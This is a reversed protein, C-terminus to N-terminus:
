GRRATRTEGPVATAREVAPVTRQVKSPLDAFLDPRAMVFPDDAAWPQDKATRVIGEGFRVVVSEKAYKVRM